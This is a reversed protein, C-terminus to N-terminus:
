STILSTDDRVICTPSRARNSALSAIQMLTLLAVVSLPLLTSIIEGNDTTLKEM